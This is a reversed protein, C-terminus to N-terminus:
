RASRSTEVLSEEAGQPDLLESALLDTGHEAYWRYIAAALGVEETAEKIPKGMETAILRALEDARADYADGVASLIKARQAGPTARWSLFAGASRGVIETVAEDSLGDFRKEIQGTTPNATVYASM